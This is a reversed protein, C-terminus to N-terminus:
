EFQLQLGDYAVHVGPPLMASLAEFELEHTMHFLYTVRANILSAYALSQEVNIHTPHPKHRLCDLLLVDVGELLAMSEDPIESVDTLYALNGIRYGHIDIYGHKVPIPTVECGFLSFPASVPNISLIPLDWFDRPERLTYGFRSAIHEMADYRGYLPIQQRQLQCFARLDDIGHLHDAHTHTYLVADVRRLQERLAQQRMDPGTDILLVHGSDLTICASSRTRKNRPDTSCCTACDCGVVPTGASSGVGLMTLQM